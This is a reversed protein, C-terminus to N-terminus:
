LEIVPKQVNWPTVDFRNISYYQQIAKTVADIFSKKIQEDTVSYPIDSAVRQYSGCDYVLYNGKSYDLIDIDCVGKKLTIIIPVRRRIQWVKDWVSSPSPNEEMAHFIPDKLGKLEQKYKGQSYEGRVVEYTDGKGIGYWKTFMDAVFTDITDSTTFIVWDPFYPRDFYRSGTMGSHIPDLTECFGELVWQSGKIENLVSVPQGTYTGIPDYTVRGMPASPVHVGRPNGSQLWPALVMQAVDTKQSGGGGTLMITTKCANHSTYWANVEELYEKEDAEYKKADVRWQMLGLDAIKVYESRVQKVTKQGTLVDKHLTEIIRKMDKKEDSAKPIFQKRLWEEDYKNPDNSIVIIDEFSYFHKKQKIAKPTIHMLYQFAGARNQVYECNKERTIGLLQMMASQTAPNPLDDIAHCHLGKPTGDKEDKDKDHFMLVAVDVTGAKVLKTHKDIVMQKWADQSMANPLVNGNADQTAFKYSDQSAYHRSRSGSQKGPM